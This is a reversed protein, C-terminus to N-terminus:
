NSSELKLEFKGIEACFKYRQGFSKLNFRELKMETKGVERKELHWKWSCTDGLKFVKQIVDFGGDRM